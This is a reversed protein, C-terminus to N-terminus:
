AVRLVVRLMNFAVVVAYGGDEGGRHLQAVKQGLRQLLAAESPCERIGSVELRRAEQLDLEGDEPNVETGAPQVWYDAGGGQHVRGSARLGLDTEVVGLAIGYAGAETTDIENHWAAVTRAAPPVWDVAYEEDRGDSVHRYTMASPPTTVESLHVAAAEAYTGCIHATVGYHREHLHSIDPLVRTTPTM